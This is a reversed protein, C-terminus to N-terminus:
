GKLGGVALALLAVIAAGTAFQAGRQLALASSSADSPMQRRPAEARRERERRERGRRVLWMAAHYEGFPMPFRMGSELAIRVSREGLEEFFDEVQRQTRFRTNQQTGM